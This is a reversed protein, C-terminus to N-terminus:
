KPDERFKLDNSLFYQGEIQYDIALGTYNKSSGYNGRKGFELLHLTSRGDDFQAILIKEKGNSIVKYSGKGSNGRSGFAGDIGTYFDGVSATFSRNSDMVFRNDSTFDWHLHRESFSINDGFSRNSEFNYRYKKKAKLSTSTKTDLSWATKWDVTSAMTVLNPVLVKNFNTNVLKKNEDTLEKYAESNSLCTAFAISWGDGEILVGVRKSQILGSVSEQIVCFYVKHGQENVFEKKVGISFKSYKTSTVDWQTSALWDALHKYPTKPHQAKIYIKFPFPYEQKNLALKHIFNQEEYTKSEDQILPISKFTCHLFSLDVSKGIFSPTKAVIPKKELKANKIIASLEPVLKTWSTESGCYLVLVHVKPGNYLFYYRRLVKVGQNNNVLAEQWYIKIGDNTQDTGSNLIKEPTWEKDLLGAIFTTQEKATGPAAIGSYVAIRSDKIPESIYTLMTSQRNEIKWSSPFELELGDIKIFEPTFSSMIFLVLISTFFPKTM